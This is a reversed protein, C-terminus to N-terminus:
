HDVSGQAHIDHVKEVGDFLFLTNRKDIDGM